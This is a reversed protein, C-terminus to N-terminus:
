LLPNPEAVMKGDIERVRSNTALELRNVEDCCHLVCVLPDVELRGFQRFHLDGILIQRMEAGQSIGGTARQTSRDTFLLPIGGVGGEDVAEDFRTPHETQESGSGAATPQRSAVSEGGKGPHERCRDDVEEAPIVQRGDSDALRWAASLDEM